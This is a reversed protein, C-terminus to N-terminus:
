DRTESIQVIWSRYFTSYLSFLCSVDILRCQVFTLGALSLPDRVFSFHPCNERVKRYLKKEEEPSFIRAPRRIVGDLAGVDSDTRGVANEYHASHGKFTDEMAYGTKEDM